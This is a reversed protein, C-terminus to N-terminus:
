GRWLRRVPVPIETVPWYDEDATEWDPCSLGHRDWVVKGARLTMECELQEKAAIRTWGCDRFSFDGAQRRLVAVDAEAGVSLTGLAPRRIAKAPTVTSRYVVEKFSMGMAMCKAMTDLMSHVHGNINGMHLDTSISDPPFGEAIARAGNRYWFSAAGHGLDFHIGRDRAAFMHDYVKGKDDIVPFQRAFVHTHIDGPRLHKLILDDYPRAPPRPWFDVMVPMGCLEGAEVSRDVSAWPPHDEDFPLNTWYHATKIGVIVEEFAKAAAAAPKPDLNAVTQEPDGMGPGAINVYALVRITARDIVSEKFHGLEQWGATGTDVCTTVGEKLFHADPNLSGTFGGKKGERTWYAHIHIDLLGPTVYLGGVEVCHEAETAPIDAEVRAIKGDRIGVDFIGDRDNAPDVVHGGKLLLDLKDQM